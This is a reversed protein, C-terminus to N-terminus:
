HTEQPHKQPLLMSHIWSHRTSQIQISQTKMKTHMGEPSERGMSADIIYHIKLCNDWEKREYSKTIFM